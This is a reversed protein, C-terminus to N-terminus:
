VKYHSDSRKAQSKLNDELKNKTEVWEDLQKKLLTKQIKEKEMKEKETMARLYQTYIKWAIYVAGLLVAIWSKDFNRFVQVTMLVGVGVDEVTDRFHDYM